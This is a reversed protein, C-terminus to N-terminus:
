LGGEGQRISSTVRQYRSMVLHAHVVVEETSQTDPVRGQLYKRKQNVYPIQM